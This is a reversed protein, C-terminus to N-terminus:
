KFDREVTYIDTIKQLNVMLSQLSQTHSISIKLKIIM